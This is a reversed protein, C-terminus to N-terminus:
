PLMKCPLERKVVVGAVFWAPWVAVSAALEGFSLIPDNPCREMHAGMGAGMFMCGM